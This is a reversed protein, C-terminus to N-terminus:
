RAPGSRQTSSVSVGRRARSQEAMFEIEHPLWYEFRDRIKTDPHARVYDHGLDTIQDFEDRDTIPAFEAVGEQLNDGVLACWHDGDKFIKIFPLEWLAVLNASQFRGYGFVETNESVIHRGALKTYSSRRIWYSFIGPKQAFSIM